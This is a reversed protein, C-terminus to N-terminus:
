QKLNEASAIENTFKEVFAKKNAGAWLFDYDILNVELLEPHSLEVGKVTPAQYAKYKPGLAQAEATLAWDYWLKAAQIHKAGKLIGM